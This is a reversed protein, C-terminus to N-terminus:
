IIWEEIEDLLRDLDPIVVKRRNFSVVNDEQLAAVARSLTEPRVAIMSAIDQRSLPLDLTIVGDSSVDGYRDKLSLLLHALRMRVSYTSVHMMSEEALRLDDALRTLFSGGISPNAEILRRVSGRDVFCIRCDTQAEASAYYNGGSFFTRYGLTDGGQALRIILQNGQADLKKLAVTGSEICYLGACPNGQYFIVQGAYYHNCVKSDNLLRLEDDGLEAWESRSRSQCQFCHLSEPALGLRRIKKRDPM